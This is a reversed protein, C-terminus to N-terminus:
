VKSGQKLGQHTREVSFTFIAKEQLMSHLDQRYM